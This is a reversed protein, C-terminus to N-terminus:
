INNCHKTIPSKEVRVLSMRRLLISAINPVSCRWRHSFFLKTRPRLSPKSALHCDGSRCYAVWALACTTCGSLKGNMDFIDYEVILKLKQKSSGAVFTVRGFVDPKRLYRMCNRMSTHAFKSSPERM